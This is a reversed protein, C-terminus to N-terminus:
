RQPQTQCLQEGKHVCEICRNGELTMLFYFHMVHCGVCEVPAALITRYGDTILIQNPTKM